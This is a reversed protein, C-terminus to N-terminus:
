VLRALTPDTLSRPRPLDIRVSRASPGEGIMLDLARDEMAPYLVEEVAPNLRHIEDIFLVDNPELNTLIAALDGARELVPGSTHRLGVGMERAIIHALTTKGLGPPGFRELFGGIAQAGGMPVIAVGEARLRAQASRTSVTWLDLPTGELEHALAEGYEVLKELEPGRLALDIDFSGGGINFGIMNRVQTRIGAANLKRFRQRLAVMVDRQTYNDRFAGMVDGRRVSAWLRELTFTRETHPVTRVYMNGQNVRALFGGGTSTLTLAVGKTQSAETQLALMAEDMAAISMGEPGFVLVEFESEDVDSPIYEQKLSRYIPVTSALMGQFAPFSLTGAARALTVGFGALSARAYTGNLSRFQELRADVDHLRRGLEAGRHGVGQHHAPVEVRLPAEEHTEVLAPATAAPGQDFGTRSASKGSHGSLTRRGNRQAGRATSSSATIMAGARLLSLVAFSTASFSNLRGNARIATVVAVAPLCAFAIELKYHVAKLKTFCSPKRNGM